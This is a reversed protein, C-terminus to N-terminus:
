GPVGVVNSLDAMVWWARADSLFRLGLGSWDEVSDYIFARDDQSKESVRQRLDVFSPKKLENTVPHRVEIVDTLLYRSTNSFSM